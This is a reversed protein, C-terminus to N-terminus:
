WPKAGSLQDQTLKAVKQVDMKTFTFKQSKRIMAGM